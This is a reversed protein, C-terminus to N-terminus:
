LHRFFGGEPDQYSYALGKNIWFTPEKPVEKCLREYSTAALTYRKVKLSCSALGEIEPLAPDGRDVARQFARAARDWQGRLMLRRGERGDASMKLRPRAGCPLSTTILLTWLLFYRRATM